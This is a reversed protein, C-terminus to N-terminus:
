YNTQGLTGRSRKEKRMCFLTNKQNAKLNEELYADIVRPDRERLMLAKQRLDESIPDFESLDQDIDLQMHLHSYVLNLLTLLIKEANEYQRLYLFSAFKNMDTWRIAAEPSEPKHIKQVYELYDIGELLKEQSNIRDLFPLVCNVMDDAHYHFSLVDEMLDLTVTQSERYRQELEWRPAFLYRCNYLPICGSATLWQPKLDAYLSFLGILVVERFFPRTKKSYHLVQLVNNGYVRFFATGRRAFGAQKAIQRLHLYNENTVM